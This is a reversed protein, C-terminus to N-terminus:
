EESRIRGDRLVIPRDFYVKTEPNHTVM